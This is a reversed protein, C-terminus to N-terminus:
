RCRMSTLQLFEKETMTVGHRKLFGLDYTLRVQEPTSFPGMDLIPAACKSELTTGNDFQFQTVYEEEVEGLDRVAVVRM